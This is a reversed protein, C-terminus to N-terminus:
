KEIVTTPPRVERFVLTAPGILIEDGDALPVKKQIRKGRVYTGNKSGLDELTAKGGRVLIRAHRRSVSADDIWLAGDPDRGLIHEGEPLHVDREELVLRFRSPPRSSDPGAPPRVPRDAVPRVAAEWRYGEAHITRIFAEGSAGLAKRLTSIQFDLSSESVAQDPWIKGVIEERTLLRGPNNLFFLLVERTKHRLPIEFGDKSLGQRAPDYRFRGFRYAM